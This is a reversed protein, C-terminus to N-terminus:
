QGTEKGARAQQAFLERERDYFASFEDLIPNQQLDALTQGSEVEAPSEADRRGVCYFRTDCKPETAYEIALSLEHSLLYDHTAIFVQLGKAVLLRLAAAIRTILKPNLNAEPEDWFLIGNAMLSGNNILHVLGAIKRYGEALLHAELIGDKSHVHFRDSELTVKGGLLKEFPSILEAADRLRPGRLPRGSLAVCLDYYTEDFSLEREKYAHIFGPYMGLAERSPIFICPKAQSVTNREVTLNGLTTFRFSLEGHATMMLVTASKRGVARRVLRGTQLDDPRFVRALKEKLMGVVLREDSIGDKLASECTKIISYLLKMLHSKGTANAGIFVNLGPSFEIEINEFATFERIQVKKVKM